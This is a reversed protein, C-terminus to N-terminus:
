RPVIPAATATILGRTHAGEFSMLLLWSQLCSDSTPACSTQLAQVSLMKSHGCICSMCLRIMSIRLCLSYQARSGTAKKSTPSSTSQARSSGLVRFGLCRRPSSLVQSTRTLRSAKGIEAARSLEGQNRSNTHEDTSLHSSAVIVPCPVVFSVLLGSLRAWAFTSVRRASNVM